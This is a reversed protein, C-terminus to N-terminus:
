SVTERGKPQSSKYHNFAYSMRALIFYADKLKDASMRSKAEKISSVQSEMGRALDSLNQAPAEGPELKMSQLIAGYPFRPLNFPLSNEPLYYRQLIDTLQDTHHFSRVRYRLCNYFEDAARSALFSLYTPDTDPEDHRFFIGPAPRPEGITHEFNM